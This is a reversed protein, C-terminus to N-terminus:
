FVDPNTSGNARFYRTYHAHISPVRATLKIRELVYINMEIEPPTDTELTTTTPVRPARLGETEQSSGLLNIVLFSWTETLLYIFAM